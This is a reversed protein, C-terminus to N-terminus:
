EVVEDHPHIVSHGFTKDMISNMLNYFHVHINKMFPIFNNWDEKLLEWENPIMVSM